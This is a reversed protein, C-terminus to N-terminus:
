CCFQYGYFIISLFNFIKLGYRSCVTKELLNGVFKWCSGLLNGM